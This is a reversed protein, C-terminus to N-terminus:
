DEGQKLRGDFYRHTIGALCIESFNPLAAKSLDLLPLRRRRPTIPEPSLSHWSGTSTYMQEHMRAHMCAPAPELGWENSLQLRRVREPHPEHDPQRRSVLPLMVM